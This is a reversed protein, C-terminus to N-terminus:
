LKGRLTDGRDRRAPTRRRGLGYRALKDYLTARSIGLARAARTRNGGHHELVRVIHERELAELTLEVDPGDAAFRRTIAIEPPLHAPLLTEADGALLGARELVNRLERINGPWRYRAMLDLAEPSVAAPGRGARRRLDALIRLSLEVLAQRGRERLPPLRIPM